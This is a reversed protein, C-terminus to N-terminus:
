CRCPYFRFFGRSSWFLLPGKVLYIIMLWYNIDSESQTWPQNSSPISSSPLPTSTRSPDYGFWSAQHHLVNQKELSHTCQCPQVLSENAQQLKRSTFYDSFLSPKSFKEKMKFKKDTAKNPYIPDITM